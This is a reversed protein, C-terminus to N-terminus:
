ETGNFSVPRYARGTGNFYKSFFEYYNLRLSQIGASLGELAIVLVNGLILVLVAPLSLPGTPTIMRAIQFFATMLSVHAIGLGAVRMFSLTNALYGSYIELIEVIWEMFFDVLLGPKFRKGSGKNHRIFELPAKFALLLTPLGLVVALLSGSPLERYDHGVYYFAVWAGAGYIWGGVLGAKDLILTFWDRKRWLNVWNILLGVGLVVMGFRITLGLIDYVSKFAGSGGHGSVIGHYDFWLPPLLPLGFYSGFMVGAVIAAAGCYIMLRYLGDATGRKRALLTGIVGVLAVVLGHGADGFMLGFMALYAVAVFPTPDVSGYAPTAYNRVLGEFPKLVAPNRMEVPAQISAADGQGPGLWEISCGGSAASRIGTEVAAVREAPIWGSFLVTRDTRSFSSRVRAVLEEARLTAWLEGLGAGNDSFYDALEAACANQRSRLTDIKANLTRLAEDKSEGSSEPLRADQWGVRDLVPDIRVADRKLSVLVVAREVGSADGSPLVVSPVGDLARTLDDIKDAQLLGARISLFSFSSAAAAGTKLDGFAEIQRLIEDLKLIEDQLSKQRERLGNVEAAMADLRKEAADLDVRGVLTDGNIIPRPIPPRAMGMFGEARKRLEGLRALSVRPEVKTTKSTWEGSLDKISVLELAGLKLLETAIADSDTDLAVAALLRMPSTFMM